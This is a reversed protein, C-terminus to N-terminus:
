IPFARLFDESLSGYEGDGDADADADVETDIVMAATEFSERGNQPSNKANTTTRQPATRMRKKTSVSHTGMNAVPPFSYVRARGRRVLSRFVLVEGEEENDSEM